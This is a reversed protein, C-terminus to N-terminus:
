SAPLCVRVGKYFHVLEKWDGRHRGHIIRYQSVSKAAAIASKTCYHASKFEGCKTTVAYPAETKYDRSM